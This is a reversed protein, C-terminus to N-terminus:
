CRWALFRGVDSDVVDVGELRLRAIHAVTPENFSAVSVLKESM